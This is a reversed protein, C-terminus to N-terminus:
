KLLKNDVLVQYLGMSIGAVAIEELDNHGDPKDLIKAVGYQWNIAHLLEHIFTQELKQQPLRPDLFITQSPFHTSGYVQGEFAVNKDLKITWWFGGIKVRKPIKMEFSWTELQQQTQQQAINM